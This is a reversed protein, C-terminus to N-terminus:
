ILGELLAELAADPQPLNDAITLMVREDLIDDYTRALANRFGAVLKAPIGYRDILDPPM